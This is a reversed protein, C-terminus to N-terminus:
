LHRQSITVVWERQMEEAYYVDTFRWGPFQQRLIQLATTAVSPNRFGELELGFADHCVDCAKYDAFWRIGQQELAEQAQSKATFLEPHFNFNM